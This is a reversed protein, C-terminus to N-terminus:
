LVLPNNHKPYDKKDESKEDIKRPGADEPKKLELIATL